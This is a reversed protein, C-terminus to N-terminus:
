QQPGDMLVKDYVADIFEGHEEVKLGVVLQKVEGAYNEIYQQLLARPNNGSFTFLLHSMQSLSIEGHLRINDIQDGLQFEGSEFLRDAIFALAHPSPREKNAQLAVGADSITTSSLIKNSKAEGKLFELQNRCDFKIAIVDEGRMPMNRHDKWRLRYIPINFETTEVVYSTCLIEGLDGSRFRKETPLKEELIAAAETKGLCRLAHSIREPSVYHQPVSRAVAEVGVEIKCLEGELLELRHNEVLDREIRCWVQFESM